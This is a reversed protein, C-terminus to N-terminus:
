ELSRPIFFLKHFFSDLIIKRQRTRANHFHVLLGISIICILYTKASKSNRIKKWFLFESSSKFIIKSFSEGFPDKQSFLFFPQIKAETAPNEFIISLREQFNQSIILKELDPCNQIFSRVLFQDLLSVASM